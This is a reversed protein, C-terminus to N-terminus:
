QERTVHPRFAIRDRFRLDVYGGGGFDTALYERMALYRDLNSGYDRPHLRVVPGGGDMRVDFRDDRGIDIESIGALLEPQESRLWGVLAVGRAIRDRAPGGPREANVLIPFSYRREGGAYPNIGVGEDDVLWVRGGILALGAPAREELACAVGNPLVRKVVARKIWRTEELAREMERLDLRFLNRGAYRQLARKLDAQPAYDTPGIEIRRLAFRPSHLLVTRVAYVGAGALGAFFCLGAGLIWLVPRRRRRPATVQNGLRRRITRLPQADAAAHGRKVDV